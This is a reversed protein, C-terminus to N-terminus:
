FFLLERNGYNSYVNKVKYTFAAAINHLKTMQRNSSGSDLTGRFGQKYPSVDSDVMRQFALLHNSVEGLDIHGILNGHTTTMCLSKGTNANSRHLSGMKMTQSAYRIYM